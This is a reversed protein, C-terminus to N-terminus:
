KKEQIEKEVLEIGKVIVDTKNLHLVDACNQLRAAEEKTLRIGVRVTRPNEIKPRGTRSM